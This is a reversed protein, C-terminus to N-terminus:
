PHPHSLPSGYPHLGASSANSPHSPLHTGRWPGERRVEQGLHAARRGRCRAMKEWPLWVMLRLSGGRRPVTDCYCTLLVVASDGGKGSPVCEEVRPCGRRVCCQPAVGGPWGLVTQKGPWVLCLCAARRLPSGTVRDGGVGLPSDGPVHSEKLKSQM